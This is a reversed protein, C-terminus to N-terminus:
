LFSQIYPSGKLTYLSTCVSQVSRLGVPLGQSGLRPTLTGLSHPQPQSRDVVLIAEKLKAQREDRGTNLGLEQNLWNFRNLLVHYLMFGDMMNLLM